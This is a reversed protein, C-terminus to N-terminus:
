KQAVLHLAPSLFSTSLGMHDITQAYRELIPGKNKHALGKSLALGISLSLWELRSFSSFLQTLQSKSLLFDRKSWFYHFGLNRRLAWERVKPHLYFHAGHYQDLPFRRNPTGVVCLGGPKLISRVSEIIESRIAEANPAMIQNGDSCGFHEIVHWLYVVDFSEKALPLDGADALFATEANLGNERWAKTRGGFDCGIADYGEQRLRLVDFGMGCGLVLVKAGPSIGYRKMTPVLLEDVKHQQGTRQQAVIEAWHAPELTDFWTSDTLHTEQHFCSFGNDYSYPERTFHHAVSSSQSLTSPM